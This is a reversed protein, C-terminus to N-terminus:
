AGFGREKLENEVTFIYRFGFLVVCLFVHVLKFGLTCKSVTKLLNILFCSFWQLQVLAVSVEAPLVSRTSKSTHQEGRFRCVNEEALAAEQLL